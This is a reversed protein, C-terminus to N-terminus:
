EDESRGSSEIQMILAGLEQSLGGKVENLARLEYNIKALIARRLKKEDVFSYGTSLQSSM